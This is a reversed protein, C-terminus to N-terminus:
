FRVNADHISVNFLWTFKYVSKVNIVRSMMLLMLPWITQQADYTNFM